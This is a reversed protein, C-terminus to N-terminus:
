FELIPIPAMEDDDDNLGDDNDASWRWCIHFIDLGSSCASLAALEKAAVNSKQQMFLLLQTQM